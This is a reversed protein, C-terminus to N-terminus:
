EAALRPSLARAFVARLAAPKVPKIVLAVDQAGTLEAVERSRDATILVAPLTAGYRRRFRAILELGTHRDLHYDVLAIDPVVHRNSCKRAAGLGTKSTIVQCGWGGLLADMGKLIDADNDVCVVVTGTLDIGRPQHHPIARMPVELLTAAPLTISFVSGQGPTSRVEIDHGLVSGIREVISLGLGLGQVSSELRQFEKFILDTKSKPIGAGTDHVEIRVADKCRRCGIVVGGRETYKIANSILNQLVRRVLRRDTYVSVSSDIVSLSINKEEALPTFEVMLTGLVEGIRFNSREPKLAGADLHSIDLLASLIDEVASLSADINRALGLEDKGLDREVLSSTYLRAANLPQLLDHSAAALFRTKDLNAEDARAKAKTLARNLKTLESTRERVRRELTENARRLAEAANVQETVDAYTIVIGGDPMTTSRVNLTTGDQVVNEQYHEMTVLLKELRDAILDRVQGEGLMGSEAHHRIIEELPVGVRGFEAPLHLLHRFQRNWCVLNLDKNFVAIGQRVNDIASQLLDRNYQIAATADDLLRMTGRADLSNRELLLALVLRSSAAGVASALLNEAFRLLRIDAEAEPDAALDRKAIFEAFSRAARQEGLYRAVTHQLDKVKISTRWLRLGHVGAQADANVFLNAQLREIPTQESVLSISVYAILNALLSWFVGHTLPDFELYFLGQPRLFAINFPGNEVLGPPLWGSAVFSPLLLTYAWILFGASIGAIAGAASARRWILGGFLAPAFQAIAAFSLLGISALAFKDSVMWYYIYALGLIVFISMRRVNLVVRSMDESVGINTERQRLILPVVLDNSIMISLAVAAVIVMATAASLGGLFALLTFHFQGAAMPLALVFTDADVNGSSFTLLGALAIPVVFINILILYLPFLYVAKRIDAPSDNEVIAVHFQRPLLIIAFMALLTLTIWRGGDVGRTFLQSIEPHAGAREILDSFGNFMGYTVFAGVLLFALLKVISEAAIARMLGAQHETADIRRAGFLVTFAAMAVAVFFAPDGLGFTAAGRGNDGPSELLTTLSMSVAKLQLAIYPLIGIVAILAVLAALLQNKGYRAAIFDAISTINHRRALVAIRQLVPWGLALMLIPGIYIPLFDWGTKTALGVSGFFTWSTCYIALTLAYLLPKGEGRRQHKAIRDGYSAIAFLFGLYAIIVVIVIWGNIM